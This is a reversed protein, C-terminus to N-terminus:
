ERVSPYATGQWQGTHKRFIVKLGNMTYVRTKAKVEYVLWEQEDITQKYRATVTYDELPSYKGCAYPNQCHKRVAGLFLRWAEQDVVSKVVKEPPAKEQSGVPSQSGVVHERVRNPGVQLVGPEREFGRGRWVAYEGTELVVGRFTLPDPGVNCVMDGDRMVVCDGHAVPFAPFQSEMEGAAEKVDGTDQDRVTGKFGFKTGKRAIFLNGEADCFMPIPNAALLLSQDLAALVADLSGLSKHEETLSAFLDVSASQKGAKTGERISSEPQPNTRAETSGTATPGERVDGCAGSCGVLAVSLAVLLSGISKAQYRM